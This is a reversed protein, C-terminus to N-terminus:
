AGSFFLSFVMPPQYYINNFTAFANPFEDQFYPLAHKARGNGVYKVLVLEPKTVFFMELSEGICIADKIKKYGVHLKRAIRRFSYGYEKYPPIDKVGRKRWIRKARRVDKQSDSPSPNTGLSILRKEYEVRKTHEYMELAILYKETSQVNGCESPALEVDLHRPTHFLDNHKNRIKRKRLKEFILYRHGGNEEYRVLHMKGLTDLREKATNPAVGACRALDRISWDKFTSTANRNKVVIAFALAKRRTPDVVADYFITRSVKTIMFFGRM